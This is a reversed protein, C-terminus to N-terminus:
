ILFQFMIILNMKLITILHRLILQANTENGM